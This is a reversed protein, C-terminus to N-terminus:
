APTLRVLHQNLGVAFGCMTTITRVVEGTEPVVHERYLVSLGTNPETIVEYYISQNPVNMAEELPPRCAFVIAQPDLIFGRPADGPPALNYRSVSECGAVPQNIVGSEVIDSVGSFNPIPTLSNAFERFCSLELIADPSENPILADNRLLQDVAGGLAMFDMTGVASVYNTPFNAATIVSYFQALLMQAFANFGRRLLKNIVANRVDQNTMQDVLQNVEAATLQLSVAPWYNLTFTQDAPIAFAQAQYSGAANRDYGTITANYNKLIQAVNFPLAQSPLVGNASIDSAIRGIFPLRKVILGLANHLVGTAALTGMANGPEAYCLAGRAVQFQLATGLAFAACIGMLPGHQYGIVASMVLFLFAFLRLNRPQM